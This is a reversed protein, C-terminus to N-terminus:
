TQGVDPDVLVAPLLPRSIVRERDFTQRVVLLEDVGFPESPQEFALLHLGGRGAPEQEEVDIEANRLLVLVAM